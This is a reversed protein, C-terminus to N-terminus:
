QGSRRAGLAPLTTVAPDDHRSQVEDAVGALKTKLYGGHTLQQGEALALDGTRPPPRWRARWTSSMSRRM